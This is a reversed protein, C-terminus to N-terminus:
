GIKPQKKQLINVMWQNDYEKANSLSTKNQETISKQFHEEIVKVGAKFKDAEKMREAAPYERNYLKTYFKNLMHELSTSQIINSAEFLKEFGLLYTPDFYDEGERPEREMDVFPKVVIWTKRMSHWIPLLIEMHDIFGEVIYYGLIDYFDCLRQITEALIWKEGQDRSRVAEKFKTGNSLWEARKSPNSCVFDNFFKVRVERIEGWWENTLWYILQRDSSGESLKKLNDDAM